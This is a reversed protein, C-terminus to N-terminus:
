TADPRGSFGERNEAWWRSWAEADSPLDQGTLRRLQRHSAERTSAAAASLGRLLIEVAARDDRPSGRGGAGGLGAGKLVTALLGMQMRMGAVEGVVVGLVLFLAALALRTTLPAGPVADPNFGFWAAGAVM